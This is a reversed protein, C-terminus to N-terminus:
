TTRCALRSYTTIRGRGHDAVPQEAVPLRLAAASRSSSRAPLSPLSACAALWRSGGFDIQIVRVVPYLGRLELTNGRGAATKVITTTRAASGVSRCSAGTIGSRRSRRGDPILQNEVAAIAANTTVPQLLDLLRLARLLWFTM